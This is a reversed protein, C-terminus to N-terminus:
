HITKTCFISELGSYYSYWTEAILVAEAVGSPRVNNSFRYRTCTRLHGRDDLYSSNTVGLYPDYLGGVVRAWNELMVLGTAPKRLALVSLSVERDGALCVTLDLYV